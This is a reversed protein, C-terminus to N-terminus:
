AADFIEREVGAVQADLSTDATMYDRWQHGPRTLRAYANFLTNFTALLRPAPVALEFGARESLAAVKRLVSGAFEFNDIGLEALDEELLVLLPLTPLAMRLRRVRALPNRRQWRTMPTEAFYNKPLATHRSEDLHFLRLIELGPLHALMGFISLAITEVLVNMGFFKELGRARLIRELLIYEWASQRPVEVGFAQALERMVVFHKAEEVVQMTVAAKAGTSRVDRLVESSVLWAYAEGHGIAALVNVIAQKQRPTYTADLMARYEASSIRERERREAPTLNQEALEWLTREAPTCDKFSSWPAHQEAKWLLRLSKDYHKKRLEDRPGGVFEYRTDDYDARRGRVRDIGRAFRNVARELGRNIAVATRNVPRPQVNFQGM